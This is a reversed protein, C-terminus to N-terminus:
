EDGFFETFGLWIFGTRNPARYMGALKGLEVSVSALDESLEASGGLKEQTLAQMANTHGYERTAASAQTM